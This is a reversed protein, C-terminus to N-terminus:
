ARVRRVTSGLGNRVLTFQQKFSGRQISHTVSEVLYEGDYANGAGRVGVIRRPKLIEGYRLLDVSGTAETSNESRFAEGLLRQSAEALSLSEMDKIHRIKRPIPPFKALPQGITKLSPIPIPISTKAFPEQIYAVPQEASQSDFNFNMSEVNTITDMNVSLARHRGGVHVDPGWYAFNQQPHNGPEIYFVFGAESALKRIYHLDTGTHAPIKTLLNPIFQFALSKADPVIGFAAYNSLLFFVRASASMMPYPFGTREVYDMVRTLDEATVSLQSMGPQDGPAVELNTAVGDFLVQSTGNISVSLIIRFVDPLGGSGLLFIDHVKSKNSLNFTLQCGSVSEKSHTIEADILAEIVERPVPRPHLGIGAMLKLQIGKLM